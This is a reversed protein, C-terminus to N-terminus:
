KSSTNVQFSFLYICKVVVFNNGYKNKMMEDYTTTSIVLVNGWMKEWPSAGNTYGFPGPEPVLFAKTQCESGTLRGHLHTKNMICQSEFIELIWQSFVFTVDQRLNYFLTLLKIWTWFGFELQESVIVISTLHRIFSKPSFNIKM